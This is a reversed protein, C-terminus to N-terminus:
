VKKDLPGREAQLLLIRRAWTSTEDHERKAADNLARREAETLRIRLTDTKRDKAMKAKRAM